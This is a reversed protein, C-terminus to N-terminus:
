NLRQPWAALQDLYQWAKEYGWQKMLEATKQFEKAQRDSFRHRPIPEPRPKPPLKAVHEWPVFLMPEQSLNTSAIYLKSFLIVDRPSEPVTQLFSPKHVLGKWKEPLLERRVLKYSHCAELNHATAEQTQNMGTIRTGIPHLWAQFDLVGHIKEVSYDMLHFRIRDMFDDPDQLEKARSLVSAVNSFSADQRNHTHGVRGQCMVATNAQGRAVMVALLKLFVNNKTEATANDSVCRFHLPVEVGREKLRTFAM